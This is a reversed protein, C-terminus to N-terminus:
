VRDITSSGVIGLALAKAWGVRTYRRMHGPPFSYDAIDEPRIHNDSGSLNQEAFSTPWFCQGDREPAVVVNDKCACTPTTPANGRGCVPCVWGTQAIIKTKM